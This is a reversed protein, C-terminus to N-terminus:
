YTIIYQGIQLQGSLCDIADELQVCICRVQVCNIEVTRMWTLHLGTKHTMGSAKYVRGQADRWNRKSLREYLRMSAEAYSKYGMLQRVALRTM